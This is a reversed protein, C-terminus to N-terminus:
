TTAGMRGAAEVTVILPHAAHAFRLGAQPPSVEVQEGAQGDEARRLKLKAREPEPEEGLHGGSWVHPRHVVDIELEEESRSAEIEVLVVVQFFRHVGDREECHCVWRELREGTPVVVRRSPETQCHMGTVPIGRKSLNAVESGSSDELEHVFGPDLPELRQPPM